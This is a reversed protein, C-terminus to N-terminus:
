WRGEVDRMARPWKGWGGEWAVDSWCGVEPRRWRRTRFDYKKGGERKAWAPGEISNDNAVGEADDFVTWESWRSKTPRDFPRLRKDATISLHIDPGRNTLIDRLRHLPQHGDRPWIFSYHPKINRVPRGGRMWGR